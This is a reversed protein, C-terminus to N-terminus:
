VEEQFGCARVCKLGSRTIISRISALTCGAFSWSQERSSEKTSCCITHQKEMRDKLQLHASSSRKWIVEVLTVAM